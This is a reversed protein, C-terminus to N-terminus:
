RLLERFQQEAAAYDKRDFAAKASAYRTRAIDPLQRQRVESFAARVRPSAETESPQYM